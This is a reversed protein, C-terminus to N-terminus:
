KDMKVDKFIYSGLLTLFFEEAADEITQGRLFPVIYGQAVWLSILMEKDMEFDKSFVSSYTFCSKLLYTLDYYFDGFGSFSPDLINRKEDSASPYLVDLINREEDSTSPGFLDLINRKVGCALM